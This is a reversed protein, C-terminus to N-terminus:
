SMSSYTSSVLIVTTPLFILAIVSLGKVATTDQQARMTLVKTRESEVRAQEALTKLSEANNKLSLGNALETFSSVIQACTTLKERLAKLQRLFVEIDHTNEMLIRDLVSNNDSGVPAGACRLLMYLSEFQEKNAELSVVADTLDDDLNKLKLRTGQAALDIM